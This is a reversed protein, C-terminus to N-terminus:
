KLIIKKVELYYKRTDIEYELNYNDYLEEEAEERTKYHKADCRKTEIYCEGYSVGLYGVKEGTKRNFVVVVYPESSTEVNYFKDKYPNYVQKEVLKITRKM